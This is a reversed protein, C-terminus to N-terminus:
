NADPTTTDAQSAYKSPPLDLSFFELVESLRESEAQYTQTSQTLHRRANLVSTRKEEIQAQLAAIEAESNAAFEETRKKLHEGYAALAAIKRSA